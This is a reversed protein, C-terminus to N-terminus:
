NGVEEPEEMGPLKVFTRDDVVRVYDRYTPDSWDIDPWEGLEARKMNEYHTRVTELQGRLFEAGQTPDLAEVASKLLQLEMNSVQGLAGGTPSEERMRTLRDFGLDSEISKIYAALRRSDSGVPLNKFISYEWGAGGDDIADLAKEIKQIGLDSRSLIAASKALGKKREKEDKADAADQKSTDKMKKIGLDTENGEEDIAITHTHGTKPDVRDIYKKAGPKLMDQFARVAAEKTPMNRLINAKDKGVRKEAMGAFASIDDKVAQDGVAEAMLLDNERGMQRAERARDQMQAWREDRRAEDFISRRQQQGALQHAMQGYNQAAVSDGRRQAELAAARISNPDNPLIAPMPALNRSLAQFLGQQGQSLQAPQMARNLGGLLPGLNVARAM